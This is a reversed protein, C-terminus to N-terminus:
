SHRDVWNSLSYLVVPPALIVLLFSVDRLNSPSWAEWLRNAGEWPSGALMMTGSLNMLIVGAAVAASLHAM